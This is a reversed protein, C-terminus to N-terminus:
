TNKDSNLHSLKQYFDKLIYSNQLKSSLPGSKVFYMEESDMQNQQQPVSNFLNVLSIVYSERDTYM